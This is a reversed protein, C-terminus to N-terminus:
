QNCFYCGSLSISAGFTVALVNGNFSGYGSDVPDFAKGFGNVYSVDTFISLTDSIGYHFQGGLMVNFFSGKNQSYNGLPKVMSYGPGAHLFVGARPPLFGLITHTDYVLLANIRSYNLKFVPSNEENSVRTFSYSLKGGLKPIFMYQLGLDVTPFNISKGKFNQVFGGSSPSGVGLAFQAKILSTGEQSLCINIFMLSGILCFLTKYIRFGLVM